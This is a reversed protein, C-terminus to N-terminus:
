SGFASDGASQQSAASPLAGVRLAGPQIRVCASVSEAGIERVLVEAKVGWLM